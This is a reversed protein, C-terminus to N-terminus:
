KKINLNKICKECLVKNSKLADDGTLIIIRCNNCLLAFKGSNFKRIPEM